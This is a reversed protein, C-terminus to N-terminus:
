VFIGYILLAAENLNSFPCPTPNQQGMWCGKQATQYFREKGKSKAISKFGYAQYYL